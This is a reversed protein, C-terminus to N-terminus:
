KRGYILELIKQSSSNVADSDIIKKQASSTGTSHKQKSTLLLTPLIEVNMRSHAQQFSQLETEALKKLNSAQLYIRDKQQGLQELQEAKRQSYQLFPKALFLKVVLISICANIIQIVFTLNINM